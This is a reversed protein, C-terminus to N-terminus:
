LEEGREVRRERLPIRDDEAPEPDAHADPEAGVARGRGLLDRRELVVDGPGLLAVELVALLEEEEFRERAEVLAPSRELIREARRGPAAVVAGVLVHLVGPTEADADEEAEAAVLLGPSDELAGL